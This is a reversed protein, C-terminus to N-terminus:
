NEVRKLKQGEDTAELKWNRGGHIDFDYNGLRAAKKSLRALTKGAETEEKNEGEVAMGQALETASLKQQLRTAMKSAETAGDTPDVFTDYIREVADLAFMPSIPADGNAQSENSKYLVYMGPAEPDKEPVGIFTHTDGILKLQVADGAYNAADLQEQIKQTDATKITAVIKGGKFHESLHKEIEPIRKLHDAKVAEYEKKAWQHEPTDGIEAIQKDCYEVAAKHLALEEEFQTQVHTDFDYVTEMISDEGAIVPTLEAEPAENQLFENHCRVM